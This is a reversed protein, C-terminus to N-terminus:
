NIAGTSAAAAPEDAGLTDGEEDHGHIAQHLLMHALTIQHVRGADFVPFQQRVVNRMARYYRATFEHTQTITLVCDGAVHDPLALAEGPAVTIPQPPM